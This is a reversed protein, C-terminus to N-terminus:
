GNGRSLLGPLERLTRIVTVERASGGARAGERRSVLVPEIGAARAGAVDDELSDGVHIARDPRVGALELGREFIERRPKRAGVAASTVVGDLMEALELRALVDPLSVDWNSVVVLRLGLERLASLAPPADDFATFTLSALLAQVVAEVDPTAAAGPLASWLVEACRRRLDRLCREDRGDDLHARYYEIERAIAHEAEAETVSVEFRELLELRLRPAPPELRVLTGMADLLVARPLRIL